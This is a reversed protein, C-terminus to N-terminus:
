PLQTHNDFIATFLLEIKARAILVHLIVIM